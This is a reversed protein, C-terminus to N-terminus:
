ARAENIWIPKSNCGTGNSRWKPCSWFYSGGSSPGRKVTPTECEPCPPGTEGKAASSSPAAGKAQTAGDGARTENLWVPAANCGSKDSKWRTCCLVYSDNKFPGRKVTPAGCEKC